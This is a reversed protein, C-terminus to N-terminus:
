AVQELIEVVQEKETLPVPNTQCWRDHLSNVALADLQDRGVGVENLSRPLGLERIVADLVDGLDARSGDLGRRQLVSAVEPLGVLFRRLRDQHENNAHHVANFKCVAPLLICSTEGHGVGLPGLQHGIGHSAGLQVAQGSTCAAMADVSGLQCQLRAELDGPDHKCRLLGPMLLGLAHLALADTKENTVSLSVAVYTEVCHDVARVGTSLWIREPTTTTLKADLIVLEPGRVPSHFMHKQKSVDDTAGAFNSYEGASLSTPVSIIPIQPRHIDPRQNPGVTLTSLDNVTAVSNAIALSILKAGDTLSGGGITILLDAQVRRVDHVIELVESWLTHSQMGIRTGVLTEKGLATEMQELVDTNRALSGSVIVYVRTAGFTERVHHAAATPFPIGYSLLPRPRDAFAARVTEM